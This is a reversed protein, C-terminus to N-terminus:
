QNRPNPPNLSDYNFKSISNLDFLSRGFTTKAWIDALVSIKAIGASVLLSLLHKEPM